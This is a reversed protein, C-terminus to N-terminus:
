DSEIGSDSLAKELLVEVKLEVSWRRLYSLDLDSQVRLVGQIDSWQKDSTEGTAKYWELKALVTDEPSAVFLINEEIAVQRRNRFQIEDFPRNKPIFLDVKYVSEFHIVNFSSRYRIADEVAKEEIYFKDKLGDVLASVHKTSIEALLDVDITSRAVGHISSALSGGVLYRIGLKDLVRIVLLVVQSAEENMPSKRGCQANENIFVNFPENNLQEAAFAIWIEKENLHPQRMSIGALAFSRARKNLQDVMQTKAAPTKKRLLEIM